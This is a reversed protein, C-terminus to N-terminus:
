SSIAIVDPPPGVRHGLMFVGDNTQHVASREHQYKKEKIANANM